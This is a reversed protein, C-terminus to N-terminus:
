VVTTATPSPVSASRQGMTTWCSRLAVLAPRGCVSTFEPSASSPASRCAGHCALRGCAVPLCCFCPWYHPSRLQVLRTSLSSALDRDLPPRPGAAHVSTVCYSRCQPTQDVQNPHPQATVIYAGRG